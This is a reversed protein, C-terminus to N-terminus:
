NSIIEVKFYKVKQYNMIWDVVRETVESTYNQSARHNAEKLIPLLTKVLM